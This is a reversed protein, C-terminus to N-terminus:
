LPRVSWTTRLVLPAGPAAVGHTGDLGDPPGSQPEVCVAERRGDFVVFWTGESMVDIAMAGPWRLRARGSPVVFADDFPGATPDYPIREASPLHDAGRVLQETAEIEWQVPEGRGLDRRFWPHWGVVAPFAEDRAEVAITTVLAQPEVRWTVEVAAPWPWTPHDEFRVVLGSDDQAVVRAPQDLCTGHLAWGEYTIPLEHRAGAWTVANDRLRGAWPAMPYMGYEVPSEGAGGLVQLGAVTWSTARAGADLDVVVEHEGAVLRVSREPPSMM